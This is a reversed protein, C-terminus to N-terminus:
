WRARVGALPFITPGRVWTTDTYDFDYAPYLQASKKPVYWLEVNASLSWRAFRVTYEARLDLKQYLPMRASNVAAPIPIWTDRTAEYVSGEVPTFPLGSGMRYRAALNWRSSPDWSTVLGMNVPQDGPGPASGIHSRSVGVWGHLFLIERIRYRWTLELGTATGRDEVHAPRDVQIQLVDRVDKRYGEVHLTLRQAITQDLGVVGQWSTTTPFDPDGTGPFLHETPPRQTYRGGGVRLTTTDGLSTVASVRPEFTAADNLTDFGLRAGPMLRVPGLTAHLTGYLGGSVRGLEGDVPEGRALAATETAVLLRAPGPDEVRLRTTETRLAMGLDWGLDPSFRHHADVRTQLGLTRTHQSGNGTLDGDLHDGVVAAVAQGWDDATRWHHRIGGVQFGRRFDLRPVTETEWPDLLDLEGAAREYRDSATWLFLGTGRRDDGHEIQLSTDSFVPWLTYQDTASGYLDQYSRRVGGSAWWGKGLPARVQGGVVVFNLFASGHVTEPADRRSEANVIAGVSDGWAPGFTSAFLELQQLQSAPFVSAYQNFHYLYPVEIGDLFYRSDHPSSGRISLTGASPSYERQVAVGPLSQVLRVADERNGPTEFAVEADVAQRSVDATTRRGEVVIEMPPPAARLWVKARDTPLTIEAVTTIYGPAAISVTTSADLDLVLRGDPGTTVERGAVTVVADLPAGSGHERVIVEVEAAWVNAILALLTM